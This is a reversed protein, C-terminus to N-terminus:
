QNQHPVLPIAYESNVESLM